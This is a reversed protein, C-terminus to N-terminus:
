RGDIRLRELEFGLVIDEEESSFRVAGRRRMMRPWSEFPVARKVESSMRVGTSGVVAGAKLAGVDSEANPTIWTWREREKGTSLKSGILSGCPM